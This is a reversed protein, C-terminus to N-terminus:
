EKKQKKIIITQPVKAIEKGAFTRIIIMGGSTEELKAHSLILNQMEESTPLIRFKKYPRGGNKSEVEVEETTIYKRMFRFFRDTGTGYNLNKQMDGYTVWGANYMYDFMKCDGFGLEKIITLLVVENIIERDCVEDVIPIQGPCVTNISIGRRNLIGDRGRRLIEIFRDKSTEM